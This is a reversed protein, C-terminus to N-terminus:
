SDSSDLQALAAWQTARKEFPIHVDPRLKELTMLFFNETKNMLSQLLFKGSGAQFLQYNSKQVSKLRKTELERRHNKYYRSIIGVARREKMFKEKKLQVLDEDLRLDKLFKLDCRRQRQLYSRDRYIGRYASMIKDRSSILFEVLRFLKLLLEHLLAVQSGSGVIMAETKLYDEMEMWLRVIDSRLKSSRFDSDQFDNDKLNNEIIQQWSALMDLHSCIEQKKASAKIFTASNYNRQENIGHDATAAGEPEIQTPKFRSESFDSSTQRWNAKLFADRSVFPAKLNSDKHSTLISTTTRFNIPLSLYHLEEDQDIEIRSGSITDNLSSSFNEKNEEGKLKALTQTSSKLEVRLQAISKTSRQDKLPRQKSSISSGQEGCNLESNRKAQKLCGKCETNFEANVLQRFNLQEVLDVKVQHYQSQSNQLEDKLRINEAEVERLNQQILFNNQKLIKLQSIAQQLEFQLQYRAEKSEYLEERLRQDRQQFELHYPGDINNFVLKKHNHKKAWISQEQQPPYNKDETEVVIRQNLAKPKSISLSPNLKQLNSSIEDEKTLIKSFIQFKNESYPRNLSISKDSEELTLEKLDTQEVDVITLSSCGMENPNSFSVRPNTPLADEELLIQNLSNDNELSFFSLNKDPSDNSLNSYQIYELPLNSELKLSQTELHPNTTPLRERHTYNETSKDDPKESWSAPQQPEQAAALERGRAGQKPSGTTSPEDEVQKSIISSLLSNHIDSVKQAFELSNFTIDKDIEKLSITVIYCTASNGGLSEYLIDVLKDEKRKILHRKNEILFNISKSFYILNSTKEVTELLKEGLYISKRIKESCALDAFTLINMCNSNTSNSCVFYLIHSTSYNAQDEKVLDELERQAFAQCDFYDQLHRLPVFTLVELTSAVRSLNRKFEQKNSSSSTSFRRYKSLLDIVSSRMVFAIALQLGEAVEQDFVYQLCQAILGETPSTLFESKGVGKQGYSIFTSNGGRLFHDLNPAINNAFVKSRETDSGHGLIADFVYEMKGKLNNVSLDDLSGRILNNKEDLHDVFSGQEKSSCRTCLIVQCRNKVETRM